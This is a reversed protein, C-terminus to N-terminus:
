GALDPTIFLVALFELIMIIASLFLYYRM